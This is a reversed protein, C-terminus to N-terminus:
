FGSMPWPALGTRLMADARRLAGARLEEVLGGAQQTRLSSDGLYVGALARQYLRLEPTVSDDRVCTATSDEAELVYRGATDGGTDDDVVEFAVRGATAYGRASLAAAVDIVRVWVADIPRLRLARGDAMLLPLPDDVACNEVTIEEVIDMSLLYDWLAAHAAPTAAVLDGVRITGGKDLDMAGTGQWALYGDPGADSEYVIYTPERSDPDRLEPLFAREWDGADRVINGSRLRRARDFVDPAINHVDASDWQRVSGALVPQRLKAGASRPAVTAESWRSAPWYGFRGYIPWEAAVLISLATGREQALDLANGLLKRLLGRRRHTAAVTVSTVADATLELTDGDWGPVTFPTEFTRMTGVYRGGDQVGWTAAENYHKARWATMEPREAPNELFTTRVARGWEPLDALDVHRVALESTVPLWGAM